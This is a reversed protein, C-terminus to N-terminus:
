ETCMLDDPTAGVRSVRHVERDVTQSAVMSCLPAYSTCCAIGGLWEMPGYLPPSVIRETVAVRVPAFVTRLTLALNM